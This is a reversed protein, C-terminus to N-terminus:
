RVPRGFLGKLPFSVEKAYDMVAERLEGEDLPTFKNFMPMIWTPAVFQIVLTFSATLLWCWVWAMSGAAEFLWLIGALLPAGLLVGLFVSKLTDLWFTKPTTKNFGFREEIVFTGYWRFPLRLLLKAALLTGIFSLGSLIANLGFGRVTADLWQFGGAFWFALLVVLNFSTPILGFRTNVWEYEQSRRYREADYVDRFEGPLEPELAKLNLLDATLHLLYELVLALLILIAYTNM